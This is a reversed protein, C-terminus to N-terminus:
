TRRKIIEDAILLRQIESTGDVLESYKADRFFREVPYDRTYGWGGHIQIADKTVRTAMESAFLKAISAIRTADSGSELVRAAERALLRAASISVEMDALLRKISEFQAIPKGFQERKKAYAVSHKQAAEAVGLAISATAARDAVLTEHLIKFGFNERGLLNERRVSADEFVLGGLDTARMGLTRKREGSPRFGPTGKEIVFVSIGLMGRDPATKAAVVFLDAHNANAILAKAGNLIYRDGDRVATTAIGAIDSGVDPETVAFAGLVEGSALRRLYRERQQKEGFRLIPLSVMTTHADVTAAISCSAKAMEELVSLYTVFDHGAGGYVPPLPVALLDHQALGRITAEPFEDRDDLQAAIPEIEQRIVEVAHHVAARQTETLELLSTM